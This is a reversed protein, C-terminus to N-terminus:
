GCEGDDPVTVSPSTAGSGTGATATPPPAAPSTAQAPSSTTPQTGASPAGAQTTSTAGPSGGPPEDNGGRGRELLSDARALLGEIEARIPIWESPSLDNVALRLRAAATAVAAADRDALATELARRRDTVEGLAPSTVSVTIQTVTERGIRPLSMVLIAIAVCAAVVSAAVAIPLVRPGPRRAPAAAGARTADIARHLDQLSAAPPAAPAAIPVLAAGLRELLQDDTM